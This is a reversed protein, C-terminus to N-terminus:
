AVDIERILRAPNGAVMTHAAVDRTVVSGAGVVAGEGVTVGKLIIARAGIWAGRCLRIPGSPVKEWAHREGRMVGRLDNIRESAKESHNNSDMLLCQYSVLVDDEIVVQRACDVITNAGIFVNNGILIEADDHETVLMGQISCEDGIRIECRSGRADIYGHILTNKGCAAVRRKNMRDKYNMRTKSYWGFVRGILNM